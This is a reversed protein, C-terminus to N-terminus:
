SRLPRTTIKMPSPALVFQNAAFRWDYLIESEQSSGSIDRLVEYKLHGGGTVM